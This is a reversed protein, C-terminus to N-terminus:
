GEASTEHHPAGVPKSQSSGRQRLYVSFIAMSGVALFESQWNQLTRSWFDSSGMYAILSLSAEHHDLQEANYEIRGTVAQSFWAGFFILTMLAVLSNSFALTRLGGTKAWAPSDDDAHAGVKQEEDSEGGEQGPEKSETSGRQILWVTALIFLAFQLYESQWNEMVDVWFVSSTVFRGLSIPEDHHAVQEHNFDAHGVLAQAALTVAFLVTFFLTLANERVWSQKM